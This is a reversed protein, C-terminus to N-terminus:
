TSQSAAQHRRRYADLDLWTLPTDFNLEKEVEEERLKSKMWKMHLIVGQRCNPWVAHQQLTESM